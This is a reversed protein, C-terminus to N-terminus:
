KDHKEKKILLVLPAIVFLMAIATFLFIYQNPLVSMEGYANPAYQGNIRSVARGIFPGTVMPIMVAFVMRVGQFLGTEKEPTYDRIKAGLVATSVLYGTMLITGGIIVGGNQKLFFLLIGGVVAAGLACFVLRYKGIKDMFFGFVVTLVCSIGLIPGATGVLDYLLVDQIYVMFYPMFIQIGISFVMFALLALYLKPRSKIVSPRFGHVINKFYPEEKNPAKIDKPLLFLCIVGSLATLGGFVVFFWLWNLEVGPKKEGVLMGQLLVVMIMAILPFVSLVSEVKGRNSTETNETVFANFAADNATSGFFTMICDMIIIMTGSMLTSHAVLNYDKRPDLFAFMIISIGWIIYGASIFIKRKGLRDSLAGIFLTTITAAIASFVTMLTIFKADGTCDFVFVNLYNNEIAWALQGILGAVIFSLWKRLGLKSEKMKFVENVIISSDIKTAIKM